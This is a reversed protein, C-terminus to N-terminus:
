YRVSHLMVSCFRVFSGTFFQCINNFSNSCLVCASSVTCSHVCFINIALTVNSRVALENNSSRLMLWDGVTSWYSRMSNLGDWFELLFHPFRSAAFQWAQVESVTIFSINLMRCCLKMECLWFWKQESYVCCTTIMLIKSNYWEVFKGFDELRPSCYTRWIWFCFNVTNLLSRVTRLICVNIICWYYTTLM